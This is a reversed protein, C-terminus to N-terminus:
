HRVLPQLLLLVPDGHSRAGAHRHCLRHRHRCNQQHQQWKFEGVSRVHLRCKTRENIFLSLLPGMSWDM